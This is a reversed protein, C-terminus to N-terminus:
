VHTVFLQAGHYAVRDGATGSLPFCSPRLRDGHEAGMRAVTQQRQRAAAVTIARAEDLGGHVAIM